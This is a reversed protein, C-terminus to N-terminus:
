IVKTIIKHIRSTIHLQAARSARNWELDKFTKSFENYVESEERFRIGGKKKEKSSLSDAFRRYQFTTENDVFLKGGDKILDLELIVDELIKYKPDFKYRKLTSTKWTISPFYLWNGHCLSTALKEGHYIGPKKPRLIRKAKDTLPLYLNDNADIIDVKPQYFDNNGINNLATEIYNPMLIDDCGLIICYEATAKKICLNFNNTIGINKPNRYYIIRKDNLTNCYEQAELSPYNDDIIILTWKDSTQAIISNITKKLLTFDGWYPLLIDIKKM